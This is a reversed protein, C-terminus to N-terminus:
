EVTSLGHGDDGSRRRRGLSAGRMGGWTWLTVGTTDAAVLPRRARVQLLADAAVNGTGPNLILLRPLEHAGHLADTNWVVVGSM